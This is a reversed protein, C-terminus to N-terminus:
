KERLQGDAHMDCWSLPWGMGEPDFHCVCVSRGMGGTKMEGRVRQTIKMKTSLM